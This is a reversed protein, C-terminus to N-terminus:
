RRLPEGREADVEPNSQKDAEKLKQTPEDVLKKAKAAARCSAKIKSHKLTKAPGGITVGHLALVDVQTDCNLEHTQSIMGLICPLKYVLYVM